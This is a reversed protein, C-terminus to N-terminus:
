LRLPGIQMPETQTVSSYPVQEPLCSNVERESMERVHRDINIAQSILSNVSDCLPFQVTAVKVEDSLDM